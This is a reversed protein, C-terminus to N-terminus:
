GDHEKQSCNIVTKWMELQDAKRKVTQTYEAYFDKETFFM